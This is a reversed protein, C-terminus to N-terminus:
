ALSYMILIITAVTLGLIIMNKKDHDTKVSQQREKKKKTM